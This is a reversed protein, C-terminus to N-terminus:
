LFPDYLDEWIGPNKYKYGGGGAYLNFDDVAPNTVTISTTLTSSSGNQDVGRITFTSTGASTPYGSIIFINGDGSPSCSLGAPLSGSSVSWTLPGVGGTYGFYYNVGGTYNVNVVGNPLASSTIVLPSTSIITANNAPTTNSVIGNAAPIVAAVSKLQFSSSLGVDPLSVTVTRLNNTGGDSYTPVPVGRQGNGLGDPFIQLTGSLSLAIMSQPIGTVQYRINTGVASAPTAIQIYFSDGETLVTGSTLAGSLSSLTLSYAISTPQVTKDRIQVQTRAVIDVEFTLTETGEITSDELVRVALGARNNYVTLIGYLPQDVDSSSVGSIYYPFQTGDAVSSTIFNFTVTEGEAVSTATAEVRYTPVVDVINVYANLGLAPIFIDFSKAEVIGNPRVMFQKTDKGDNGIRFKGTMSGVGLDAAAIGYVAYDFETGSPVNQTELTINFTVGESASSIPSGIDTQWPFFNYIPRAATTSTDLIDVNTSTVWDAKAQQSQNPLSITMTETGEATFDSVATITLYGVQYSHEEYGIIDQYELYETQSSYIPTRYTINSLTFNGSLSQGIDAASIGTIQYPVTSGNAQNYTTLQIVVSEGERIYSKNATLVYSTPTSVPKVGPQSVVLSITYDIFAGTTSTVRITFSHTGIATPTGSFNIPAYCSKSFATTSSTINTTPYVAVTLWSPKTGGIVSVSFGSNHVGLEEVYLRNFYPDSLPLNLTSAPLTGGEDILSGRLYLSSSISMTFTNSASLPGDPPPTDDTVTYTWNYVGVQTPNGVLYGERGSNLTQLTLGPPLSGSTLRWYYPM